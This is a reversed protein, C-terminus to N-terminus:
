KILKGGAAQVEKIKDRPVQKWRGLSPIYMNVMGEPAAPLTKAQEEPKIFLKKIRNFEPQVKRLAKRHAESYTIRGDAADIEKFTKTIVNEQVEHMLQIDRLIKLKGERTNLLEPWTRMYYKIEAELIRGRFTQNLGKIQGTLIKLAEQAEPSLRARGVRSMFGEGKYDFMAATFAHPMKDAHTTFLEELRGLEMKQEQLRDIKEVSKVQEAENMKLYALKEQQSLKKEQFGIRETALRERQEMKQQALEQRQLMAGLAPNKLTVAAIQQPTYRRAAGPKVEAKQKEQADRVTSKWAMELQDPTLKQGTAKEDEMVKDLFSKQFAPDTSVDQPPQGEQPALIKELQTREARKKLGEGIAAGLSSIGKGLGSGYKLHIM